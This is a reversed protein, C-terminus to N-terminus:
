NRKHYSDSGPIPPMGKVPLSKPGSKPDVITTGKQRAQEVANEYAIRAVEAVGEGLYREAIRVCKGLYHPVNTKKLRSYVEAAIDNDVLGAATDNALVMAEQDLKQEILELTSDKVSKVFYKSVIDSASKLSRWDGKEMLSDYQVLADIATKVYDKKIFKPLKEDSALKYRATPTGKKTQMYCISIGLEIRKSLVDEYEVNKFAKVGRRNKVDVSAIIDDDSLQQGDEFIRCELDKADPANVQVLAKYEPDNAFNDEDTLEVELLDDSIEEPEDPACDAPLTVLGSDHEIRFLPPSDRTPSIYSDQRSSSADVVQGKSKRYENANKKCADAFGKVPDKPKIPKGLVSM